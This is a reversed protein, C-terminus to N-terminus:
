KYHDVPQVFNRDPQDFHDLFFAVVLQAFIAIVVVFLKIVRQHLFEVLIVVSGMIRMASANSRIAGAGKADGSKSAASAKTQCTLGSLSSGTVFTLRMSISRSM